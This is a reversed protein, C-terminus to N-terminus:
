KKKGKLLVIVNYLIVGFMLSVFPIFAVLLAHNIIQSVGEM